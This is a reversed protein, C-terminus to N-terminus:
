MKTYNSSTLNATGRSSMFMFLITDQQGQLYEWFIYKCTAKTERKLYEKWFKM